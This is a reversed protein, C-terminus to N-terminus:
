LAVVQNPPGSTENAQNRKKPYSRIAYASALRGEKKDLM